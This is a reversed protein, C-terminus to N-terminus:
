LTVPPLAPASFTFEEANGSPAMGLLSPNQLFWIFLCACACVCVGKSVWQRLRHYDCACACIVQALIAGGIQSNTVVWLYLLLLFVHTVASPPISGAINRNSISQVFWQVMCVCECVCPRVCVCVCVLLLSFLYMYRERWHLSSPSPGCATGALM